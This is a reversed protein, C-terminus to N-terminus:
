FHEHNHYTLYFGQWVKLMVSIYTEQFPYKTETKAMIYEAQQSTFMKRIEKGCDSYNM